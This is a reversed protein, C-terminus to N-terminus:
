IANLPTGIEDFEPARGNLNLDEWQEQVDASLLDKVDENTQENMHLLIWRRKKSNRVLNNKGIHFSRFM